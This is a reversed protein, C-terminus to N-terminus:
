LLIRVHASTLAHPKQPSLIAAQMRQRVYPHEVWMCWATASGGQCGHVPLMLFLLPTGVLVPNKLHFM